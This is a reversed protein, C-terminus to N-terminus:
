ARFAPPCAPLGAARVEGPALGWGSHYAAVGGQQGRGEEEEEEAQQQRGQQQSAGFVGSFFSGPQRGQGQQGQGQGQQGQAAMLETLRRHCLQLCLDGDYSGRVLLCPPLGAGAEAARGALARLAGPERGGAAAV